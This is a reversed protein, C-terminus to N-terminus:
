SQPTREERDNQPLTDLLSCGGPSSAVLITRGSVRVLHLAHQPTLALREVLQMSRAKGGAGRSVAAFQAVGKRRLWWLGGGLLALVTLVSLIQRIEEM